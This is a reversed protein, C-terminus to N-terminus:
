ILADCYPCRDNNNAMYDCFRCSEHGCEDDRGSYDEGSCLCKVCMICVIHCLDDDTDDTPPAVPAPAELLASM